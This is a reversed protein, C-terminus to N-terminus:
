PQQHRKIIDLIKPNKMIEDASIRGKDPLIIDGPKQDTECPGVRRAEQTISFEFRGKSSEMAHRTTGKYASDFSGEFLSDTTVTVGKFRCEIHLSVRNEESKVDPTDCGRRPIDRSWNLIDDVGEGVCFQLSVGSSEQNAKATKIEWLGPKHKPVDSAWAGATFLAACAACFRLFCLTKIKM